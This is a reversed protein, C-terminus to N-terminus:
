DEINGKEMDHVLSSCRIISVESKHGECFIILNEYVIYDGYKPSSKSGIAAGISGGDTPTSITRRDKIGEKWSADKKTIIADEGTAEDAYFKGFEIADEHSPYIRVEFDKRGEEGVSKWGYFAKTAKPLDETKYSKNIKFGTDEIDKESFIIGTNTIKEILKIEQSSDGCAIIFLILYTPLLIFKIFKQSM